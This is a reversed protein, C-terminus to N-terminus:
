AVEARALLEQIHEEVVSAPAHKAVFGYREAVTATLNTGDFQYAIKAQSSTITGSFEGSPSISIGPQVALKAKVTAFEEPTMPFQM